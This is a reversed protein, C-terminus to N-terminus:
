RADFIYTSIGDTLVNKSKVFTGKELAIDILEDVPTGGKPYEVCEIPKKLSCEDFADEKEVLTYGDEVLEIGIDCNVIKKIKDRANGLYFGTKLYGISVTLDSVVCKDGLGSDGNLGSNIDVSIVKADSANIRDIIDAALGKVSGKFGTGFICDAIQSYGDFGTDECCYQYEIGADVCKHFYYLGDDSFKDKLIFLTSELGHEKLLLALVYGDGANNGSGCVIATKGQWSYSEYVGVGAKYMLKKSDTYNLITHEDSRRMLDVSIVTKM